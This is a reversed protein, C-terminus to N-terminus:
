DEFINSADLIGCISWLVCMLYDAQTFYAAAMIACIVTLITDLVKTNGMNLIKLLVVIFYIICLIM